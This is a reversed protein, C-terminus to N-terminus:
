SKALSLSIIKILDKQKQYWLQQSLANIPSHCWKLIDTLWNSSRCSRSPSDYSRCFSDAVEAPATEAEASTTTAEVPATIAQASATAAEAPAM